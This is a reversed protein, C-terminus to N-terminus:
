YNNIGINCLHWIICTLGLGLEGANGFVLDLVNLYKSRFVDRHRGNADRNVGDFVLATRIDPLPSFCRDSHFGAM